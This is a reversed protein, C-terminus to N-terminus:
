MFIVLLSGELPKSYPHLTRLYTHSLPAVKWHFTYSLPVKETLITYLLTLPQVEPCLRRTYFKTPHGGQPTQYLTLALGQKPCLRGVGVDKRPFYHLFIFSVSVSFQFKFFLCSVFLVDVSRASVTKLTGTSNISVGDRSSLRYLGPKWCSCVSWPWLSCSIGTFLMSCMLCWNERHM